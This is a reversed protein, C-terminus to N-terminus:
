TMQVACPCISTKCRRVRAFFRTRGIQALATNKLIKSRFIPCVKIKPPKTAFCFTNMLTQQGYYSSLSISSKKGAEGKKTTVIIVGNAGKIGYIATASADKLVDISEVENPNLFNIDDLIMGDVVYVPNSNNMTGTGRIRIVAGAGPSGSSPTVFVGAIKGALAQDVSGTAISQLDKGKVSGIAGTLDSKKQTGYGVAVFEKLMSSEEQLSMNIKKNTVVVDQSLYGVYSFTLVANPAVKELTYNGDIDTLTGVTTGKLVINVGVLAENKADTVKGQVTIVTQGFLTANLALFLLSLLHKKM